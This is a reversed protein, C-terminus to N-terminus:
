ELKNDLKEHLELLVEVLQTMAILSKRTEKHSKWFDYLCVAGAIMLLGVFMFIWYEISYDQAFFNMFM